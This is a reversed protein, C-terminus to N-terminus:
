FCDNHGGGGDAVIIVNNPANCIPTFVMRLYMKKGTVKIRVLPTIIHLESINDSSQFM